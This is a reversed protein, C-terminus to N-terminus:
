TPQAADTYSSPGPSPPWQRPRSCPAFSTGPWGHGWSMTASMPSTPQATSTPGTSTTMSRSTSDSLSPSSSGTSCSPPWPGARPSGLAARLARPLQICGLLDRPLREKWLRREDQDGGVGGASGFTQGVRAVSPDHDRRESEDADSSDTHDTTPCALNQRIIRHETSRLIVGAMCEARGSRAKSRHSPLAPRRHRVKRQQEREDM